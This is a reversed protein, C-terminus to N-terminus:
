WEGYYADGYQITVTEITAFEMEINALERILNETFKKIYEKTSNDDPLSEFEHLILFGNDDGCIFCGTDHEYIVDLCLDTQNQELGFLFVPIKISALSVAYEGLHMKKLTRQSRYSKNKPYSEKIKFFDIQM